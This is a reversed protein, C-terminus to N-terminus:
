MNGMMMEDMQVDSIIKSGGVIRDFPDFGKGSFSVKGERILHPSGFVVVNKSPPFYSSIAWGM